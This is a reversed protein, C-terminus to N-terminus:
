RVSNIVITSTTAITNRNRPRMHLVNAAADVTGSDRAPVAPPLDRSATKTAAWGSLVTGGDPSGIRFQLRHGGNSVDLEFSLDSRLPPPGHLRVNFRATPEILYADGLCAVMGAAAGGHM